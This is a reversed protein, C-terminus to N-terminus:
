VSRYSEEFQYLGQNAYVTTEAKSDVQITHALTFASLKSPTDQLIHESLKLKLYDETDLNLFAEMIIPPSDLQVLNFLIEIATSASKKLSDSFKNKTGCLEILGELKEDGKLLYEADEPQIKQINTNVFEQLDRLPVSMKSSLKKSNDYIKQLHEKISEKITAQM